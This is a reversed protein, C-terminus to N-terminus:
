TTAAARLATGGGGGAGGSGGCGCGCGCGARALAEPAAKEITPADPGAVFRFSELGKADQEAM